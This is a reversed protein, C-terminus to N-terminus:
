LLDKDGNRVFYDGYEINGLPQFLLTKYLKDDPTLINLKPQEFGLKKLFQDIYKFNM